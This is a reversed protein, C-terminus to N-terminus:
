QEKKKRSAVVFGALLLLGAGAGYYLGTNSGGTRPLRQKNDGKPTKDDIVKIGDDKNPKDGPKVPTKKGNNDTKGKPTKDKDIDVTKEPDNPKGPDEPSPPNVPTTPNEPSPPNVPTTPNEPSPPNVPTVPNVPVPPIVPSPPNVPTDEGPKKNVITLVNQEIKAIGAYDGVLQAKFGSELKTVKLNLAIKGDAYGTPVVEETLIYNGTTLKEFRIAGDSDTTKIGMDKETMGAGALRKLRFGAGSLKEGSTNTKIVELRDYKKDNITGSAIAEVKHTVVRSEGKKVANEILAAENEIADGLRTKDTYDTIYSIKYSTDNDPINIILKDASTDYTFIKDLGDTIEIADVFNGNDDFRGKWIKYNDGDFVLKDSGQEKRLVINGKLKDEIQIKTENNDAYTKYPRYSLNWKIYGNEEKVSGDYEKKLVTEDVDARVVRYLRDKFNEIGMEVTNGTTSLKNFFPSDTTKDVMEAKVFIVYPSSLNSFTFKASTKADASGNFEATINNAALQVDTLYAGAAKVTGDFRTIDTAPSGKYILFYKNNAPNVKDEIIPAFKFGAELTDNVFFKGLEGQADKIDEANVSIRYVVSKTEKDYATKQNDKANATDDDFVDSNVAEASLNSLFSKAATRSLLHKELMKANYRYGAHKEEVPQNNKTLMVSNFAGESIGGHENNLLVYRDMIRSQFKAENDAGAVLKLELIHGVVKGDKLVEYVNGTLGTSSSILPRDLNLLKQHRNRNPLIKSFDVGSALTTVSNDGYKRISFGNAPTVRKRGVEVETDFIFTDYVYYSDTGPLKSKDFKVTWVPEYGVRKKNEDQPKDRYESKSPDLEKYDAEKSIEGKDVGNSNTYLDEHLKVKYVPENNWYVYADNSFNGGYIDNDINSEVILEVVENVNPITFTYTKGDNTYAANTEAGRTGDANLRYFYAKSFIQEKRSLTDSSLEDKITVTGLNYKPENILIRWVVKNNDETRIATKQGFKKVEINATAYGSEADKNLSASNTYTKEKAGNPFGDFEVRSSLTFTARGKGAVSLDEAKIKYSLSMKNANDAASTVEPTVAKGDIKLSGDIYENAVDNFLNDTFTFGELSLYQKPNTGKIYREASITWDIKSNKADLVGTKTLVVETDLKGIEYNKNFLRVTAVNSSDYTIKEPDPKILLTSQVKGGDKSLLGDDLNTFDFKAKVNGTGADRTYIVDAIKLKTVTDYVPQSLETLGENPAAFKLKDGLDFVLYDKKAIRENDPKDTNLVANFVIDVQIDKSMDLKDTSDDSLLKGDQRFEVSTTSENKVLDTKDKGGDAKAYGPTNFGSLLIGAILMFSLLGKKHKKWM